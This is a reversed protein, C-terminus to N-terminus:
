SLSDGFDELISQGVTPGHGLKHVNALFNPAKMRRQPAKTLVALAKGRKTIQVAQGPRLRDTLKRFEKQFQRLTVKKM